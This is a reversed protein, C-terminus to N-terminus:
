SFKICRSSPLLQLKGSNIQGLRVRWESAEPGGWHIAAAVGNLDDLSSVDERKGRCEGDARRIMM